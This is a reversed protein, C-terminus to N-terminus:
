GSALGPAQIRSLTFRQCGMRRLDSLSSVSAVTQEPFLLSIGASIEVPKIITELLQSIKLWCWVAPSDDQTHTFCLLM